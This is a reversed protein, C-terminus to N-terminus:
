AATEQQDPIHPIDALALGTLARLHRAQQETLPPRTGRLKKDLSSRDIGLERALWAVTRGNAHIQEIIAAGM